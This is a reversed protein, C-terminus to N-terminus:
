VPTSDLLGQRELTTLAQEYRAIQSYYAQARERTIFEPEIRTKMEALLWYKLADFMTPKLLDYDFRFALLPTVIELPAQINSRSSPEIYRSVIDEATDRMGDHEEFRIIAAHAGSAFAAWSKPNSRMYEWLFARMGPQSLCDVWTFPGIDINTLQVVADHERRRNCAGLLPRASLTWLCVNVISQVTLTIACRGVAGRWAGSMILVTVVCGGPVAVCTSITVPKVEAFVIPLKVHKFLCLWGVLMAMSIWVTLMMAFKIKWPFVCANEREISGQMASAVAVICPPLLHVLLLARHRWKQQIWVSTCFSCSASVTQPETEVFATYLRHLRFSLLSIFTCAGWVWTGWFVLRCNSAHLSRVTDIHEFSVLSGVAWFIGAATQLGLLHVGRARLVPHKVYKCQFFIVICVNIATSMAVVVAAVWDAATTSDM